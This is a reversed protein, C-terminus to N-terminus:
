MNVVTFGGGLELGKVRERLRVCGTVRVRVKSELNLTFEMSVSVAFHSAYFALCSVNLAIVLTGRVRVRFRM